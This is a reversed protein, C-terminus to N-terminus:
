AAGLLCLGAEGGLGNSVNYSRESVSEVAVRGQGAKRREAGSLEAAGLGSPGSREPVAAKFQEVGSM